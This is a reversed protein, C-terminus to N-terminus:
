MKWLKFSRINYKISESYMLLLKLWKNKLRMYLIPYPNEQEDLETKKYIKFGMHKYFGIANPNQEIKLRMFKWINVGQIM